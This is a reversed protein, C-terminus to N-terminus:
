VFVHSRHQRLDGAPTPYVQSFYEDGWVQRTVEDPLKRFWNDEGFQTRHAWMATKKTDLLDHVDLTNTIQAEVELQIDLPNM